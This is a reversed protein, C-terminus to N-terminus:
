QDITPQNERTRITYVLNPTNRQLELWSNVLVLKDDVALPQGVFRLRQFSIRIAVDIVDESNSLACRIDEISKSRKKINDETSTVFRLRRNDQCGVGANAILSMPSLVNAHISIIERDRGVILNRSNHLYLLHAVVLSM